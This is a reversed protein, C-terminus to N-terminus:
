IFQKFSFFWMIMKWACNAFINLNYRIWVSLDCVGAVVYLRLRSIGYNDGALQWSNGAILWVCPEFLMNRWLRRNEYHQFTAEEWRTKWSLLDCVNREYSIMDSHRIVTATRELFYKAYTTNYIPIWDPRKSIVSSPNEVYSISNRSEPISGDNIKHNQIPYQSFYIHYCNKEKFLLQNM